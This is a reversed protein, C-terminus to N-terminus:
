LLNLGERISPYILEYNFFKKAKNNKVKKSSLYFEKLTSNELDNFDIIKLSKLNYKNLIKNLLEDNSVPEDDAINYIEGSKFKELSSLLFGSIDELHIRSFKHNKKKIIKLNNKKIKTILNKGKSYIGALRFIQVPYNKSLAKWKKEVDLRIIGKSSNPILKSNEDVWEGKHDGYVSTSSLYTIWKSKNLLNHNSNLLELFIDRSNVPPTSVLIHSFKKIQKLLKKDFKQENFNFNKYNLNLYKYEGTKKRSTTVLNIKIKNKILKKLFDKAVQGFGFCFLNIEQM